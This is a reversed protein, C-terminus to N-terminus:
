VAEMNTLNGLEEPLEELENIHLSLRSLKTLRGLERPVSRLRNSNLTRCSHIPHAPNGNSM